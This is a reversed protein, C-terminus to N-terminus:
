RRQRNGSRRRSGLYAVTARAGLLTLAALVFAVLMSFTQTGVVVWRRPYRDAILRGIPSLFLLPAQGIFVVLGLQLSSGTLRYVLWAQAVSQLWSGLVSVTQGFFYLRYNRNEISRFMRPLRLM